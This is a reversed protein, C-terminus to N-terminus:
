DTCMWTECFNCTYENITHVCKCTAIGDASKIIVCTYGNISRVTEGGKVADMKEDELKAITEKNLTLKLKKM